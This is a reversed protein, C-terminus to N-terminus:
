MFSTDWFNFTDYESQMLICYLRICENFLTASDLKEYSFKYIAGAVISEVVFIIAGVQWCCQTRDFDMNETINESHEKMCKMQMVLIADM